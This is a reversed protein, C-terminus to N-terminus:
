TLSHGIVASLATMKEKAYWGGILQAQNNNHGSKSIPKGSSVTNETQTGSILLFKQLNM